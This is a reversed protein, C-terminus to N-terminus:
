LGKHTSLTGCGRPEHFGKMIRQIVEFVHLLLSFAFSNQNTKSFIVNLLCNEQRATAVLRKSHTVYQLLVCSMHFVFLYLSSEDDFISLPIEEPYAAVSGRYIKKGSMCCCVESDM